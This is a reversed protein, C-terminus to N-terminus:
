ESNEGRFSAPPTVNAALSAAEATRQLIQEQLEESVRHSSETQIPKGDPGSIEQTVKDGYRKPDWKSLLKFRTEVRLKSRLIWEKDPIEIVKGNKEFEITDHETFDAINLADMAIADFGVERARAITESFEPYKKQWDWVTTIGPMDDPKCIITLPTGECLGNYIKEVVEPCYLTPRGHPQKEEVVVIIEKAPAKKRAAKKATNAKRKSQPKPKSAM